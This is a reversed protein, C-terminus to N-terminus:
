RACSLSLSVIRHAGFVAVVHGAQAGLNVPEVVIKHAEKRLPSFVNVAGGLYLCLDIQRGPDLIPHFLHHAIDAAM